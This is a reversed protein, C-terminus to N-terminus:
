RVSRRTQSPTEAFRRRYDAAFRSPTAFGLALAVETLSASEGSLILHRAALLRQERLWDMPSLGFREKFAYQLSRPSYGTLRELDRLTWPEGLRGLLHECLADTANERQAGGGEGGAVKDGFLEPCIMRVVLRNLVADYGHLSLVRSDCDFTDFVRGIQGMVQESRRHDILLPTDRPHDLRLDIAEQPHLGLMDRAAAELAAPQLKFMLLSRDTGEGLSRRDHKPLLVGGVGAGFEHTVGDTVVRGKGVLPLMLTLAGMGKRDVRSAAIASAVVTM